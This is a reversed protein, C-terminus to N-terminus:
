TENKVSLLFNSSARDVNTKVENLRYQIHDVKKILEDHKHTLSQISRFM